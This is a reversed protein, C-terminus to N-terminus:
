LDRKAPSQRHAHIPGPWLGRPPWSWPLGSQRSPRDKTHYEFHVRCVGQSDIYTCPYFSPSKKILAITPFILDLFIMLARWIEPAYQDLRWWIHNQSLSRPQNHDGIHLNSTSLHLFNTKSQLWVRRAEPATCLNTPMSCVLAILILLSALLWNRSTAFGQGRYVNHFHKHAENSRKHHMVTHSNSIFPSCFNDLGRDRHALVGHMGMSGVGGVHPDRLEQHLSSHEKQDCIRALLMSCPFKHFWYNKQITM